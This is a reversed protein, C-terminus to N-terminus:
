NRPPTRASPVAQHRNSPPRTATTPSAPCLNPRRPLPQSARFPKPRRPTPPTHCPALPPDRITSDLDTTTPCITAVAGRPAGGADDNGVMYSLPVTTILDLTFSSLLYRRAVLWSDRVFLGRQVYGTRFNILIDTFFLVDVAADVGNLTAQLDDPIEYAVQYPVQAPMRGRARAAPISEVGNLDLRPVALRVHLM